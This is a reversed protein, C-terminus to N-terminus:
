DNRRNGNLFQRVDAVRWRMANPGIRVPKALNGRRVDRWLSTRSRGSLFVVEKASLLAECPLDNFQGLRLASLAQTTRM